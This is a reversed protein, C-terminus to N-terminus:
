VWSPRSQVIEGPGLLTFDVLDVFQPEASLAIPLRKVSISARLSGPLEITTHYDETPDVRRFEEPNYYSSGPAIPVWGSFRLTDNIQNRIPDDAKRVRCFGITLRPNRRGRLGEGTITRMDRRLIVAIAQKPSTQYFFVMREDGRAVEEMRLIKDRWRHRWAPGSETMPREVGLSELSTEWRWLLIDRHQLRFPKLDMLHRKETWQQFRVSSIFHHVEMMERTRSFYGDGWAHLAIGILFSGRCGNRCLLLAVELEDPQAREIDDWYTVSPLRKFIVLNLLVGGNVIAPPSQRNLDHAFPNEVPSITRSNHFDAPSEALLGVLPPRDQAPKWPLAQNGKARKDSIQYSFRSVLEGWAFLSQDHTTGMIAEQLRRFARKGEGYILPINVDFIGLLCYAADEVRSTKRRSAWSMRQAVSVESLVNVGNSSLVSSDIGTIASLMSRLGKKSGIKTWDAAYFDVQSPAILEQLTWGRTFWRSRHIRRRLPDENINWDVDALYAYCRDARRYWQFM